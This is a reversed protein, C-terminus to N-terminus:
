KRLGGATHTSYGAPPTLFRHVLLTRKGFYNLTLFKRTTRSYRVRAFRLSITERRAANHEVGDVPMRSWVAGTESAHELSLM